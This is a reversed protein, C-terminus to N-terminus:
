GKTSYMLSDIHRFFDDSKMRLKYDYVAYGIAFSLEYGKGSDRNFTDVNRKLRTVANELINM